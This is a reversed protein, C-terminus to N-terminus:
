KAATAPVLPKPSMDYLMLTNDYLGVAVRLADPHLALDYAVTPLKFAFFSKEEALKWFWVAGGNGGGAAMLFEGTPHFKVAFVSGQSNEQPRLL